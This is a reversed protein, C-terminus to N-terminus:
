TKYNCPIQCYVAGLGTSPLDAFHFKLHTGAPWFRHESKPKAVSIQEARYRHPETPSAFNARRLGGCEASYRSVNHPGGAPYMYALGIRLFCSQWVRPAEYVASRKTSPRRCLQINASRLPGAWSKVLCKAMRRILVLAHLGELRKIKKSVAAAISHEVENRGQGHVSCIRGAEM